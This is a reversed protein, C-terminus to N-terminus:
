CIVNKPNGELFSKLNDFCTNLLRLRSEISVWSIHPTIFCNDCELLPNDNSIPEPVCVDLGAAYVKGSKLADALDKQNVLPGRANNIIIVGDKMKSISERCILDRTEDFLPCHLFIIDAAAYIEDYSSAYRCHENELEQSRFKDYYLVDMGFAQAIHASSKGIRGFGIIGLTKGSLELIPYDWFMHQGTASWRGKHVENSHHGVRCCIELLLAFAYQSVMATGYTPVNTLTISHKKCYDTDVYDYGTSIMGIYKLKPAYKLISEDMRCEPGLIVDADRIKEIVEQKDVSTPYIDVKDYAERLPAWYKEELAINRACLVVVHM